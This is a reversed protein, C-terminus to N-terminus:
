LVVYITRGGTSLGRTTRIGRLLSGCTRVGGGRVNTGRQSHILVQHGSYSVGYDDSEIKSQSTPGEDSSCDEDFLDASDMEGINFEDNVTLHSTLGENSSCDEDFLDASDM